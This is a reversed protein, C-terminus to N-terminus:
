RILLQFDKKRYAGPSLGTARRFATSFASISQYGVLEAIQAIRADSSLLADQAQAMRWSMVYDIPAMGLVESFRAAFSSRSMFARRALEVVTWPHAPQEHIARLVAGLQPDRLGALLRSQTGGLDVHYRLAEVLLVDLLRNSVLTRGPRDALAEDGLLTLLLGLRNTSVDQRRIHILPVVLRSLFDAHPFAFSFRGAIFRTIRDPHGNRCLTAHNSFPLRFEVPVGGKGGIMQWAPPAAMLLFDGEDLDLKINDSREIRFSGEIVQGFIVIKSAPMQLTWDDDARIVQWEGARPKLLEVVQSLPDM